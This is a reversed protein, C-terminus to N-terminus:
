TENIDRWFDIAKLVANIRASDREMMDVELLKTLHFNLMKIRYDIVEQPIPEVHVGEGYLYETKKKQNENRITKM